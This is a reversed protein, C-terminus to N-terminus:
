RAGGAAAAVHGAVPLREAGGQGLALPVGDGTEIVAVFPVRRTSGPAIAVRSGTVKLLSGMGGVVWLAGDQAPAAGALAVETGAALREWSVGADTSRLLAGQLGVAYLGGSAAVLGFLTGAHGTDLPEWQEGGDRSRYLLGAEGAVLLSAGGDLAAIAYLHRRDPDALRARADQWSSGGDVTALAMGYAGVALGRAADAFWVDFLAPAFLPEDLTAQADELALAAEAAQEALAPTDGAARQREIAELRARAEALAAHDLARQAQLGDRLLTWSAGGDTSHLVMGDHGVAWGRRADVFHVATLMSRVPSAIQRWSRGEDTSRLVHGREGVAVLADGARAADLLLSQAARPVLLAPEPAVPDAARSPHAASAAMLLLALLARTPPRNMSSGTTQNPVPM